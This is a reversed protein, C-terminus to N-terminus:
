HDNLKEVFKSKKTALTLTKKDISMKVKMIKLYHDRSKPLDDRVAYRYKYLEVRFAVAQAKSKFGLTVTADSAEAFVERYERPYQSARM